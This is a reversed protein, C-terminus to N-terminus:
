SGPRAMRFGEPQAIYVEEKLAGNLFAQKFDGQRVHWGHYAVAAMLARFAAASAVPAFIEQFDIGAVQKFGKACLRAKYRELSGDQHRKLKFVWKVPLVNCHAPKDVLEWTKMADLGTLEELCAAIWQSADPCDLAAKYTPPETHVTM